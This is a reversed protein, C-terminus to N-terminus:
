CSLASAALPKRNLLILNLIHGFQLVVKKWGHNSSSILVSAHTGSQKWTYTFATRPHQGARASPTTGAYVYQFLVEVSDVFNWFSKISDM